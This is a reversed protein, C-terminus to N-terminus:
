ASVQPRVLHAPIPGPDFDDSPTVLEPASDPPLLGANNTKPTVLVGNEGEAFRTGGEGTTDATTSSPQPLGAPQPREETVAEGVGTEPLSGNEAKVRNQTVQRIATSKPMGEAEAAKRISEGSAVRSEVRDIQTLAHWYTDLLTEQEARDAADMARLAIVKRMTKVDYGVGKAESFVDKIDGQIAIREEILKEIREIFSKLRDAAVSAAKTTNM